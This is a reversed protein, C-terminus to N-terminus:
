GGENEAVLEWDEFDFEPGYLTDGLAGDPGMRAMGRTMVMEGGIRYVPTFVRGEPTVVMQTSTSLGSRLPWTELFGGEPTYLNLRGQRGDRLHNGEMDYVRLTPEQMELVYIEVDYAYIGRVGGFMYEDPGEAMGISAEEVLRGPGGWVSGGLTRVTRVNGDTVTEHVWGEVAASRSSCGSSVAVLLAIAVFLAILAALSRIESRSETM